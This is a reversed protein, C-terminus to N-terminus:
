YRKRAAEWALEVPVGQRLLGCVADAVKNNPHTIRPLHLWTLVAGRRELKKVIETLVGHIPNTQHLGQRAKVVYESDSCVVIKLPAPARDHNWLDAYDAIWLLPTAYALMEAVNVTGANAAGAFTKLLRTKRECAVTAWACAREWSSGSGDGFLCWDWDEVGRATLFEAPDVVLDLIEPITKPL